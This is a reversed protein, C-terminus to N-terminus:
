FLFIRSIHVDLEKIRTHLRPRQTQLHPRTHLAICNRKKFIIRPTLNDVGVQITSPPSPWNRISSSVFHLISHKQYLSCHSIFSFIVLSDVTINRKHESSCTFVSYLSFYSVSTPVNSSLRPM